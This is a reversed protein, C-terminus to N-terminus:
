NSETIHINKLKYNNCIIHKGMRMKYPIVKLNYPKLISNILGLFAKNTKINHYVM